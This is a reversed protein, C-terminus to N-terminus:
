PARAASMAKGGATEVTDVGAGGQRDARHRFADVLQELAKPLDGQRPIINAAPPLEDARHCAAAHSAGVLEPRETQCRTVAFQCRTHFACGEPPHSASPTEGRLIIRERKAGPEPVPIASLLARSYPHRPNTFLAQNPGIEVIRGLQMVAIRDAIHKVV